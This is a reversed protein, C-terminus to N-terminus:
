TRVVVVMVGFVARRRVVRRADEARALSGWPQASFQYQTPLGFPFSTHPLHLRYM